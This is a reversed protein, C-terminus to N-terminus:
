TSGGGVFPIYDCYSDNGGRLVYIKQGKFVPIATQTGGVHNASGCNSIQFTQENSDDSNRVIARVWRNSQYQIILKIMGDSPVVFSNSASGYDTIGTYTGYGTYNRASIWENVKKMWEKLDFM